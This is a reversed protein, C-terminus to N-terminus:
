DTKGHKLRGNEWLVTEVEEILEEVSSPKTIFRAAGLDLMKQRRDDDISISGTMVIVPIAQTEPNSKLQRLIAQGGEGGLKLDLLILALQVEHAVRLARQGQPTTRVGFGNTRLSERMLALNDEEDDVVLVTGRQVLVRRVARLLQREDIPKAVYDVAGLQLSKERDPLVSIVVVPIDQTAPNSKLEELIAFGDADPLLVDLTILDPRERQAAQLAKDGRQAIMTERGNGDLHLQILKAVDPDDEVILVKTAIRKTKEKAQATQRAEVTPLTFTFKSGREPESEVWVQGGQMETLSKVIPLGLGTGSVEQVRPDDVRFFRDFIKERDEPAIGIGTDTVSVHVEDSHLYASVVIEGSAPTYQHANAVLNTLIQVVRAPDAFVSPLDRPVDQRLTLKKNKARPTMTTVVQDIMQEIRIAKPSLKIRGSEIRSINLLDNVLETLRDANNKIISLFRRQEDALEGVAGMMLLDAYGKISTMPTRLEHSVTSVFETKARETEVEVTVDRFVSVTGLFEEDMLVPALHVSVIRDGINLQAALYEGVTYTEPQKAWQTVTEMWDQAQTGYLGLMENITRGLADGRPLELIREAAANVLVVKGGADAVMVGDAVGELISQSKTAEVQQAKLMHGMRETQERILNYLEANNIANAVQAAAAEVLRLHDEDFYGPQPHFLLLTGLVQNSVTLPVALASHYEREKEESEVWRPDQEIDAVITAQRHEIVWGALGEGQFFRTPKGGIPLEAGAGLTARHILQGSQQDPMLVSAREAGVAEVVLELARNLVHELDLSASLHSAIRYLTEVRDREKALAQTREEVRQELEQSFTRVEDFLRANEVAMTVQDALASLTAIEAPSFRHPEQRNVCLIGVVQDGITLPALAAPNMGNGGNGGNGPPSNSNGMVDDVALPMGSKAVAGVLGEGPAFTPILDRESTSGYAARLTYRKSETDLIFISSYDCELLQTATEVVTNLVASLELKATASRSVENFLALTDARYQLEEVLRINEIALAAQGAFIELAEVTALDPARNDRPRDVSLLGQTEGGSGILPVLLMDNPHWYGPEHTINETEGGHVDLRDRWDGQKEAPIYYSQSIRCEEDMAEEVISWPQQIEKIREFTPIPIGAAAVRRQHPPNGELISILVLNFGVSEQIAYAIEELIEELPRDSRLARSVELVLALQDLRRHLSNGRRVQEEYRQANGIAIAVQAALGEIFALTGQDFVNEKGDSQLFILGALSRAYFIPTALLFRNEAGNEGMAAESTLLSEGTRSVEALARRLIPPAEQTQLKARLSTEDAESYGACAGMRLEENRAERLIIAGRTALSLHMAEELAMHLIHGLDLTSSIERSVRQISGLAERYITSGTPSQRRGVRRNVCEVEVERGTYNEPRDPWGSVLQEGHTVVTM